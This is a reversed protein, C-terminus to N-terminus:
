CAWILVAMVGVSVEVTTRVRVRARARVLSCRASSASWPKWTVSAAAGRSCWSRCVCLLRQKPQNHMAADCALGHTSSTSRASHEYSCTQAARRAARVHEREYIRSGRKVQNDIIELVM